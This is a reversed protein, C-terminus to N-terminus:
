SVTSLNWMDSVSVNKLDIKTLAILFYLLLATMCIESM